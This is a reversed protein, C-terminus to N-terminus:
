KRKMLYLERKSEKIKKREIIQFHNCFVKEFVEKSYEDFIDKRNQLLIQVNSDQKPVFEIILYKGLRAFYQSILSLPLNNSIALHHILALAFICDVKAREIFSKREKNEWGLSPSPNTLDIILPLLFKNKDNKAKLYVEEVVFPDVDCAITYAGTQSAIQSFIGENAGLDIVSQPKIKYLFNKILFKKHEFAKNSYNMFHYYKQWETKFKKIKMKEITSKLNEILAIMQLKKMKYKNKGVKKNVMRKQNLAHLHIHTLLPFKLKTTLPLARSALDLPIGDIFDRLLLNFRPDKEAMLSLPALFHQCFQRYATWPEGERYKEFSLTDIFIPKYGIFQINYASADKLSINHELAIKQIELTLLAADKLQSFSWEYPYSLFPIPQPKIIKYADKTAAFKLSAETHHILFQKEILKKYLGSNILLDFNNKGKQNIQRYLQSKYFFLFGEPDRFSSPEFCTGKIKMKM